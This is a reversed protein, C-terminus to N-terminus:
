VFSALKSVVVHPNDYTCQLEKAFIPAKHAVPVLKIKV